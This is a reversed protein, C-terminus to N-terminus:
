RFAEDFWHEYEKVTMVEINAVDPHHRILWLLIKLSWARM